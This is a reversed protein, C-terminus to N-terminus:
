PRRSRTVSKIPGRSVGSKAAIEGDQAGIFAHASTDGDPGAVEGSPVKRNSSRSGDQYVVDFLVFGSPSGKYSRRM